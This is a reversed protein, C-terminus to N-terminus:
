GSVVPNDSVAEQQGTSNTATVKVQIRWSLDRKTLQYTRGQGVMEDCVMDDVACHWWEYTFSMPQIGSWRGPDALLTSGAVRNNVVTSGTVTLEAYKADIGGGATVAQNGSITSDVVTLDSGPESSIGGGVEASNGSIWCRLVTLTGFNAIGGGHGNM